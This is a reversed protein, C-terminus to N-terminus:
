YAFNAWAASSTFGAGPNVLLVGFDNGAGIQYNGLTNSRARNRVLLNDTSTVNVGYSGNYTFVNSDISNGQGTPLYLGSGTNEHFNSREVSNANGDIYIGYASNASSTCEIIANSESAFIGYQNSRATCRTLRCRAITYFGVVVNDLATCDTLVSSEEVRFGDLTNHESTCGTLVCPGHVFFGIEASVATCNRLTCGDEVEFGYQSAGRSSCNILMASEFVDFGITGDQAFCNELVAGLSAKFCQNTTSTVTLDQFRAGAAEYADVGINFGTISGNRVAARSANIYVGSLAGPVGILSFGNLDLTVGSSLEICHKGSVGTINGTLYYSGPTSLKFLSPTSDSDGPTNTANVAIRPEIESLTKNTSSVAGSPPNLPGLAIAAAVLAFTAITTCTIATRNM